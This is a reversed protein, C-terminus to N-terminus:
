GATLIQMVGVGSVVAATAFGLMAGSNLWPLAPVRYDRVSM